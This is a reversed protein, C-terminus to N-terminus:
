VAVCCKRRLGGLWTLRWCRAASRVLCFWSALSCAVAYTITQISSINITIFETTLNTTRLEIPLNVYYAFVQNQQKRTTSKFFFFFFFDHKKKHQKVDLSAVYPKNLLPFLPLLTPPPPRRNGIFLEDRREPLLFRFSRWGGGSCVGGTRLLKYVRCVNRTVFVLGFSWSNLFLEAFTEQWSSLDSPDATSSCSPLRKKDRLCTRLILQQPVVRCVNRTVFVLGFSWSNLFLEAFTEQWSSLDSPDATSSCSPLLVIWGAIRTWSWRGGRWRGQVREKM